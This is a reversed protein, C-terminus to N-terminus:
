CSRGITQCLQLLTNILINFKLTNGIDLILYRVTPLCILLQGFGSFPRDFFVVKILFEMPSKSPNESKSLCQFYFLFPRSHQFSVLSIKTKEWPFWQQKNPKNKTCSWPSFIHNGSSEIRFLRKSKCWHTSPSLGRWLNFRNM